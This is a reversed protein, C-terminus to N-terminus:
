TSDWDDADALQAKRVLSRRALRVVIAQMSRSFRGDTVGSIGPVLGPMVPLLSGIQGDRRGIASSSGLL